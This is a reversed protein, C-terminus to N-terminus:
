DHASKLQVYFFGSVAIPNEVGTVAEIFLVDSSHGLLTKPIEPHIPLNIKEGKYYYFNDTQSFCTGIIMMLVLLLSYKKM